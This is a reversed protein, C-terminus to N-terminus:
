RIRIMNYVTQDQDRFVLEDDTLRLITLILTDEVKTVPNESTMLIRKGRVRISSETSKRKGDSYLSFIGTGTWSCEFTAGKFPGEVVRWTGVLERPVTPLVFRFLVFSIVSAGVLLLLMFWLLRRNHPPRAQPAPPQPQPAAVQIENSM